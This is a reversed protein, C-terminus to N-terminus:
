YITPLLLNSYPCSADALAFQFLTDSRGGQHYATSTRPSTIRLDDTGYSLIGVRPIEDPVFTCETDLM